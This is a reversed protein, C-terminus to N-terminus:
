LLFGSFTTIPVSHSYYSKGDYRSVWVTDGKNLELVAMNSGTLYSATNHSMTRVKSAGNHVIDLYIYNKSETNVTVFFVYTGKKSATFKGTTPNYGNGINTVVHPFILISGIWGGNYNTLGVTFGEQTEKTCSNVLSMNMRFVELSSVASSLKLQANQSQEVESRITNITNNLNDSLLRRISSQDKELASLNYVVNEQFDKTSLLMHSMEVMSTNLNASYRTFKDDVLSPISSNLEMTHKNLDLLTVSLYRVEIKIDDLIKSTNEQFREIKKNLNIEHKEQNRRVHTINEDIDRFNNEFQSIEQKFKQTEAQLAQNETKLSRVENKLTIIEKEAERLQQANTALDGKMEIIDKLIGQVKKDMTMRILTEQNLLQRFVDTKSDGSKDVSTINQPVGDTLLSLSNTQTLFLFGLAIRSWM